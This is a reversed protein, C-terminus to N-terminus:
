SKRRESTVKTQCGRGTCDQRIWMLFRSQYIHAKMLLKEFCKLFNGPMGHQSVAKGSVKLMKFAPELKLGIYGSYSANFSKRENM